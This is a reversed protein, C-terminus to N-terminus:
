KEKNKSNDYFKDAMSMENKPSQSGALILTDDQMLKAARVFVRLLEPHNGLGSENLAQKFEPTGLKDVARKALAVSEDWKEGGIEADAKGQAIWNQQATVLEQKQGEIIAAKLTNDRELVAQAEENTLKHETAFKTVSEIGSANEDSGEPMKLSYTQPVTREATLLGEKKPDQQSGEKPTDGKPKLPDQDVKPDDVKGTGDNNLKPDANNEM